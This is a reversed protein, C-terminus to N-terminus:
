GRVGGRVKGALLGVGSRHVVEWIDDGLFTAVMKEGTDVRSKVDHVRADSSISFHPHPTPYVRNLMGRGNCIGRGGPLCLMARVPAIALVRAPYEHYRMDHGNVMSRRM